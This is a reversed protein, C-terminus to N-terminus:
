VLSDIFRDRWEPRPLMCSDEKGFWRYRNVAVFDYVWDRLVRPVFRLVRAFRWPGGVIEAMRLAAESRLLLQDGELLIMSDLKDVCLGNQLLVDKGLESQLAAFRLKPQREHKLVWQVAGNCLNCVGDFLLIPAASEM